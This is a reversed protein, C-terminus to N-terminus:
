RGSVTKPNTPLTAGEHFLDSPVVVIGAFEALFKICGEIYASFEEVSLTKSDPLIEIKVDSIYKEKMGLITRKLVEHAQEKTINPDGWQERLWDAFVTAIASWYYANADLSRTRKVQRILIEYPGSLRGIESMLKRKVERDSLNVILADKPM